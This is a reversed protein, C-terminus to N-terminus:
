NWATLAAMWDSIMSQITKLAQFQLEPLGIQEAGQFLTCFMKAARKARRLWEQRADAECAMSVESSLERVSLDSEQAFTLWDRCDEDTLSYKGRLHALTAFHSVSLTPESVHLLSRLEWSDRLNYIADTSKRLRVCLGSTLGHHYAPFEGYATAVAEALAWKDHEARDALIGISEIIPTLDDNM